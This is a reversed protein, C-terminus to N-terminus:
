RRFSIGKGSAYMASGAVVREKRSPKPVKITKKDTPVEASAGPYVGWQNAGCFEDKEKRQPVFRDPFVTALLLYIVALTAGITLFTEFM